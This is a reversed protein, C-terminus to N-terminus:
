RVLGLRLSWDKWSLKNVEGLSAGLEHEDHEKSRSKPFKNCYKNNQKKSLEKVRETTVLTAKKDRNNSKVSPM